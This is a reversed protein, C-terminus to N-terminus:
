FMLTTCYKYLASKAWVDRYCQTYNSIESWSSGKEYGNRRYVYGSYM